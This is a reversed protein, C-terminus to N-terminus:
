SASATEEDNRGTWVYEAHYTRWDISKPIVSQFACISEDVTDAGTGLAAKGQAFDRVADVMCRRFEVIAVDSAGLTDKSRDAIPGMSTWMASDQNPIGTIGTFSDEKM